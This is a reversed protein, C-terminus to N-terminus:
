AGECNVIEIAHVGSGVVTQIVPLEAIARLIGLYAGQACAPKNVEDPDILNTNHGRMAMFLAEIISNLNNNLYAFYSKAFKDVCKLPLVLNDSTGNILQVLGNVIPEDWANQHKFNEVLWAKTFHSIDTEATMLEYALVFLQRINPMETMSYNQYDVVSSIRHREIDADGALLMLARQAQKVRFKAHKVAVFDGIVQLHYNLIPFIENFRANASEITPPLFKEILEATEPVNLMQRYASIALPSDNVIAEHDEIDIVIFLERVYPALLRIIEVYDSSVAEEFSDGIAHEDPSIGGVHSILLYEVIRPQRRMTAFGLANNVGLQDPGVRGAQPTTLFEVVRLFGQTAAHALTGNVRDQELRRQNEHRLLVGNNQLNALIGQEERGIVYFHPGLPLEESAIILKVSLYLVWLSLIQIKAM